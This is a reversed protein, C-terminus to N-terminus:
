APTFTLHLEKLGRLLFASDYTYHRDAAPGHHEDSIKIDKMRALVRELSVRGEVRALPAGPCSHIGRGFALHERVNPREIRFEDPNEFKEPDRNAAGPLLMIPTGAKVRIGAVTGTKSALRFHTKIPTEFRLTEELFVGILSPDDRLRQQLEPSEALIKLGFTLLKTTTEQGAAFLFAALRVVEMLEPLSGDEYTAQALSTLVDARPERRRDEIYATFRDEFFQLPNQMVEQSEVMHAHQAELSSSFAEHDEEPVGLLDAIVLLSFPQAYQRFFECEGDAVFEDLLKDALALMFAENEKLRRPTMLRSLLGRVETHHPPDLTSMYDGFPIEDHHQRIQETIDDGEPEFPLALFPGATGNCASFGDSDRYVALAAEYGVAALLGQGPDSSMPCEARREALYAYPDDILEAKSLFEITNFDSM